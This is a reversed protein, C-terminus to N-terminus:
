WGRCVIKSEKKLKRRRSKMSSSSKSDFNIFPKYRLGLTLFSYYDNIDTNGTKTDLNESNTWRMSAELEIFFKNNIYYSIGVGLPAVIEFALNDKDTGNEKYGVTEYIVGSNVERKVSRFFMAGAGALLYVSLRREPNYSLFMNTLDIYAELDLEYFDNEFVFLGDSQQKKGSLKGKFVEAQIAIVPTLHKAVAIGFVSELYSFKDSTTEDTVIDGYFKTLGGEVKISWNRFADQSFLSNLSFFQFFIVSCILIITKKSHPSHIM